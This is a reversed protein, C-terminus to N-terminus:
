RQKIVAQFGPHPSIYEQIGVDSELIRSPVESKKESSNENKGDQSTDACTGLADGQVTSTQKEKDSKVINAIENKIDVQAGTTNDTHVCKIDTQAGTTDGTLDADDKKVCALIESKESAVCSQETVAHKVSATDEVKLKKAVPAGELDEDMEEEKVVCPM